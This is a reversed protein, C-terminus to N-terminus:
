TKLELDSTGLQRIIARGTATGFHQLLVKFRFRVVYFKYGLVVGAAMARAGM